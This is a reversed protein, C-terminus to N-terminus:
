KARWGMTDTGALVLQIDIYREHAELLADERKRGTEKAVMAYVRKGDIEYTDAPLEQLDPRGLFEFAHAFGQHLAVYRHANVQVDIIM